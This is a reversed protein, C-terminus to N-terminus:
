MFMLKNIYEESKSKWLLVLPVQILCLNYHGNEYSISATTIM